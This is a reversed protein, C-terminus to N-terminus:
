PNRHLQVAAVISISAGGLTLVARTYRRITGAIVVRQAQPDNADTGQTFTAIAQWDTSGDASDQVVADITDGASVSFIQLFADGGNASSASNDQAAGTSTSTYTAKAALVIGPYWGNGQVEASVEILGDVEDTIEYATTDAMIPFARNGVADGAPLWVMIPTSDTGLAAALEEDVKDAGGEFFGGFAATHDLLTPTYAHAATAAGWVTSDEVAAVGNISGSRFYGSLDIGGSYLAATKGAAAAM